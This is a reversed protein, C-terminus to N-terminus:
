ASALQSPPKTQACIRRLIRGRESRTSSPAHVRGRAQPAATAGILVLRREGARRAVSKGAPRTLKRARTGARNRADVWAPSAGAPGVALRISGPLDHGARRNGRARVGDHHDLMHLAFSSLNSKSGVRFISAPSFITACPACACRPSSSDRGSDHQTRASRAPQPTRIARARRDILTRADRNEGGAILQNRNLVLGARALNAVRICGHQRRQHSRRASLRPHKGVAASVGLLGPHRARQLRHVRVQRSIEPPTEAPLNSRTSGASARM